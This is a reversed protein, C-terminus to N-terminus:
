FPWFVIGTKVFAGGKYGGELTFGFNNKLYYQIGYGLRYDFILSQQQSVLSNKQSIVGGQITVYGIMRNRIFTIVNVNGLVHHSLLNVDLVNSSATGSTYTMKTQNFSYDVGLGIIRFPFKSSPAVWREMRLGYLGLTNTAVINNGNATYDNILDIRDLSSFGYYTNLSTSKASLIPGRCKPPLSKSSVFGDVTSVGTNRLGYCGILVNSILILYLIKM